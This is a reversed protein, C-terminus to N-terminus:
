AADSAVRVANKGSGAGGGSTQYLPFVRVPALGIVDIIRSVSAREIRDIQGGTRISSAYQRIGGRSRGSGAVRGRGAIGARNSRRSALWLSTSRPRRLRRPSDAARRDAAGGPRRSDRGPGTACPIGPRARAWAARFASRPWLVTWAQRLGVGNAVQQQRHVGVAVSADFLVLHRSLQLASELHHGLPHVSVAVAGDFALLQAAAARRHRRHGAPVDLSRADVDVGLERLELFRLALGDVSEFLLRHREFVQAVRLLGALEEGLEIFVGVALELRFFHGIRKPLPDLPQRPDGIAVAVAFSLSSSNTM